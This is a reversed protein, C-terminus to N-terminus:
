RTEEYRIQHVDTDDHIARIDPSDLLATILIEDAIDWAEANSSAIVKWRITVEHTWDAM